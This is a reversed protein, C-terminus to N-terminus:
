LQADQELVCTDPSLDSGVSGHSFGGSSLLLLVLICCKYLAEYMELCKFFFVIPIFLLSLAILVQIQRELGSAM